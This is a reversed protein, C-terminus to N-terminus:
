RVLWRGYTGRRVRRVTRGLRRHIVGDHVLLYALGYGTVGAGVSLTPRRLRPVATGAAMAAVTLGAFTVPYLDNRELRGRRPRHHSEHWGIGRGHMLWRHAAYAAGEM